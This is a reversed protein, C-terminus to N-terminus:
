PTTVGPRPRGSTSRASSRAEAVYTAADDYSGEGTMGLGIAVKM